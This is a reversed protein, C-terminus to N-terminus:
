RKRSMAFQRLWVRLRRFDEAPLADPMVVIHRRRGEIRLRLWVMVPTVRSAVDVQAPRWGEGDRWWLSGASGLRLEEVPPVHVERAADWLLLLSGLWQLPRPLHAAWLGVWALVWLLLRAFRLRRSPGIRVQMYVEPEKM